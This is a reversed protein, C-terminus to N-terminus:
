KFSFGLKRVHLAGFRIAVLYKVFVIFRCLWHCFNPTYDKIYWMSFLLRQQAMHFITARTLGYRINNHLRQQGMYLIAISYTIYYGKCHLTSYLLKQQGIPLCLGKNEQRFGLPRQYGMLLFITKAIGHTIFFDNGSQPTCYDNSDQIYYLLRQLVIHLITTKALGHTIYFDKSHWKYHLLRQWEKHFITTMAIGHTIYYDKNNWM